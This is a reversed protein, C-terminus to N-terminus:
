ISSMGNFQTFTDHLFNDQHILLLDDGGFKILKKSLCISGIKEMEQHRKLKAVVDSEEQKEDLYSSNVNPDSM